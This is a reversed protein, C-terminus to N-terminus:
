NFMNNITTANGDIRISIGSDVVLDINISIFCSYSIQININNLM